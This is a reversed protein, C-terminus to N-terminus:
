YDLKREWRVPTFDEFRDGMDLWAPATWGTPPNLPHVKV